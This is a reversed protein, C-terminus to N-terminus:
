YSSREQVVADGPRNVGATNIAQSAAAVPSLGQVFRVEELGQHVLLAAQMKPDRREQDALTQLAIREEESLVIYFRRM